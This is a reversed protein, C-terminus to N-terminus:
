SGRKIPTVLLLVGLKPHDFYEVAKPRLRRGEVLRYTPPRSAGAPVTHGTLTLDVDAHLYQYQYVRITGDLGGAPDTIRMPVAQTPGVGPQLWHVTDLVTYRRDARLAQLAGALRSRSALGSVPLVSRALGKPAPYSELGWQEGGGLGQMRNAFVIATVRYVPANELTAAGAGASLWLTGLLVARLPHM